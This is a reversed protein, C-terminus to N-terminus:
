LLLDLDYREVAARCHLAFTPQTSPRSNPWGLILMKHEIEWILNTLAAEDALGVGLYFYQFHHLRVNTFAM